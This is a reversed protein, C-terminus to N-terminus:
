ELNELIEGAYTENFIDPSYTGDKWGKMIRKLKGIQKDIVEIPEDQEEIRGSSPDIKRESKWTFHQIDSMLDSDINLAALAAGISVVLPQLISTWGKVVSCFTLLAFIASIKM